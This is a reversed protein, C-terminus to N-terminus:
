PTKGYPNPLPKEPGAAREPRRHPQARAPTAAPSPSPPSDASPAVTTEAAAPTEAPSASPSNAAPPSVAPPSAAAPTEPSSTASPATELAPAAGSVGTVQARQWQVLGVLAGIGLSVSALIVWTRTRWLTRQWSRAPRPLVHDAEPPDSRAARPPSPQAEAPTKWASSLSRRPTEIHVSATASSYVDALPLAADTTPVDALPLPAGTTPVDALPLAADTKTKAGAAEAAEPTAVVRADEITRTYVEALPATAPQPGGKEAAARRREQLRAGAIRAVEEAVEEREALDIGGTACAEALERALGAATPCRRRVDLTLAHAVAQELAAPISADLERLLPPERSAVAALVSAENMNDYLRRRALIEWAMVGAAWVDTRRDLPKGRAQEPSMYALKGKIIGTSTHSHRVLAKAIGFDTLKAVGDCGVLVNQPSFDRHVLEAPRGEADRLEHAAHLGSLADCLARLAVGARVGAAGGRPWLLGSLADGEVYEMVLFVGPSDEGVDLVPVVNPHHVRVALKAEEVLDRFVEGTRMHHHVLKVAVHREFGFDGRARGLYVTATGGSAIPLLIEYRGVREPVGPKSTLLEARV